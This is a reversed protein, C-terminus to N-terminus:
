HKQHAEHDEVVNRLSDEAPTRSRLRFLWGVPLARPAIRIKRLKLSPVTASAVAHRSTGRPGTSTEYNVRM